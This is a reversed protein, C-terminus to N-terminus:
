SESSPSALFAAFKEASRRSLSLAKGLTEDDDFLAALVLPQGPVRLQVVHGNDSDIIVSRSEGIGLERAVAESLAQISSAMSALRGDSSADGARAAPVHVVEFGDDTLIVAYVLSTALERMERLVADGHAIVAPDRHLPETM